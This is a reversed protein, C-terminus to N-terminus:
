IKYLPPMLGKEYFCGKNPPSSSHEVEEIAHTIPVKRAFKGFV